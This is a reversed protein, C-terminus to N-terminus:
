DLILHCAGFEAQAIGTTAYGIIPLTDTDGDEVCGATQNSATLATGVTCAGSADAKVIGIGGTQIWSYSEGTVATVAIGVPAGTLTTISQLVGNYPNHVLDVQTAASLAVKIPDHLTLTVVAATAAPHSKIRYILGNGTGGEGTAVLYGDAFENATVTTTDTTTVTLAGIAAAAVILSQSDATEAPAQQLEGAVLASTGAKAYRFKRGDNSIGISGLQHSPVTEESYPDIGYIVPVGSLM